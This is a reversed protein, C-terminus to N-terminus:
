HPVLVSLDKASTESLNRHLKPRRPKPSAEELLAKVLNRRLWEGGMIAAGVRGEGERVFDIETRLNKECQQLSKRMRDEAGVLKDGTERSLERRTLETLEQCRKEAEDVLKQTEEHAREFNGDMREGLQLTM